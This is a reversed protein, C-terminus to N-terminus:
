IGGRGGGEEEKEEDIKVGCSMKEEISADRRHLRPEKSVLANPRTGGKQGILYMRACIRGPGSHKTNNHKQKEKALSSLAFYQQLPVKGSCYSRNDFM